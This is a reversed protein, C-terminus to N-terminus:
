AQTAPSYVVEMLDKDYVKTIHGFSVRFIKYKTTLTVRKSLYVFHEQLRILEDLLGFVKKLLKKTNAEDLEKLEEKVRHLDGKRHSFSRWQQGAWDIKETFERVLGLVEDVKETYNEFANKFTRKGVQKLVSERNLTEFLVELNRKHEELFNTMVEELVKKKRLVGGGKMIEKIQLRLSKYKKVYSDSFHESLPYAKELTWQEKYVYFYSYSLAPPGKKTRKRMERRLRRESPMKCNRFVKVKTAETILSFPNVWKGEFSEKFLDIEWEKKIYAYIKAFDRRKLYTQTHTFFRIKHTKIWGDLVYMAGEDKVNMTKQLYKLLYASGREPNDLVELKCQKGLKFYEIIRSFKAVFRELLEEPLYVVCHLHPTFDKHPEIVRFYPIDVLNKNVGKQKFYRILERNAKQLVRYGEEVSKEADYKKNWVRKGTKTTKTQHYESPLTLTYFVPFLGKEVAIENIYDCVSKYYYYNLKMAKSVSYEMDFCEGTDKRMVYHRRAYRKNRRETEASRKVYGWRLRALFREVSEKGKGPGNQRYSVQKNNTLPKAVSCM